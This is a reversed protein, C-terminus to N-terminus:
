FKVYNSGDSLSFKCVDPMNIKRCIDRRPSTRAREVAAKLKPKLARKHINIECRRNEYEIALVACLSTLDYCNTRNFGMSDEVYQRPSIKILGKAQLKRIGRRANRPDVKMKDAILQISPYCKFHFKASTMLLLTRATKIESMGLARYGESDALYPLMLVRDYQNM